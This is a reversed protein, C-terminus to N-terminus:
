IKHNKCASTKMQSNILIFLLSFSFSFVFAAQPGTEKKLVIIIM